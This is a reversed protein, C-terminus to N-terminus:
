FRGLVVAGAGGPVPLPAVSTVMTESRDSGRRRARGSMDFHILYAATGSAAGVMSGVVVDELHHRNDSVRTAAVYGAGALLGGVALGAIPRAWEAGHEGWLHESGVQLALFTAAAFSTSAHGSPFSKMGDILFEHDVVFGDDGVGSCDLDAPALTVGDCAARLWRERFDPRLRGFTLKMGETIMAAGLVAEAGGLIIAHTRHLDQRVAFDVGAAALIAAGITVTLASTPVKEQLIPRGIVDDLRADFILTSDPEQLLVSPGMLAPLPQVNDLAGTAVLTGAGVVAIYEAGYWQLYDGLQGSDWFGPGAALPPNPTPSEMPATQTVVALVVALPLM